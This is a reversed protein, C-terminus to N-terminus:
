GGAKIMRLAKGYSDKLQPDTLWSDYVGSKLDELTRRTESKLFWYALHWPHYVGLFQSLSVDPCVIHANSQELYSASSGGGIMLTDLPTWFEIWIREGPDQGAMSDKIGKPVGAAAWIGEGTYDFQKAFSGKLGQSMISGIASPWTFHCCRVSGSPVSRTGPKNPPVDRDPNYGLAAVVVVGAVRPASMRREAEDYDHHGVYFVHWAGDIHPYVLLRCDADIRVGFTGVLERTKPELPAHGAQLQEVAQRVGKQEDPYIRQMDRVAMPDFVVPRPQRVSVPGQDRVRWPIVGSGPGAVIRQAWAARLHNVAVAM